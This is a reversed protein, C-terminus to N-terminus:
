RCVAFKSEVIGLSRRSKQTYLMGFFLDYFILLSFAGNGRLIGGKLAEKAVRKPVFLLFGRNRSLGAALVIRNGFAVGNGLCSRKWLLEAELAVGSGLCSQKWSM